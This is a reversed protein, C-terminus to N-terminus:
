NKLGRCWVKRSITKTVETEPIKSNIMGITMVIIMEITMEITMVIRDKGEIRDM